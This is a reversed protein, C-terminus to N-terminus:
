PYGSFGDRSKDADMSALSEMSLWRIWIIWAWQFHSRIPIVKGSEAGLVAKHLALFKSAALNLKVSGRQMTMRNNKVAMIVDLCDCCADFSRREGAVEPLDGIEVAIWHRAMGYVSLLESASAKMKDHNGAYAVRFSNFVQSLKNCFSARQRPFTWIHDLFLFFSAFGKGIMEESKQLFALLETGFVGDSLFTHVWDTTM